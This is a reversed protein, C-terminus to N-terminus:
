DGCEPEVSQMAELALKELKPVDSQSLQELCELAMCRVVEDRDKLATRLAPIARELAVLMAPTARDGRLSETLEDLAFVASQRNFTRSEVLVSALLDVGEPHMALLMAAQRRVNIDRPAWWYCVELTVARLTSIILPHAPELETLVMAANVRAGCDKESSVYKVVDPVVKPGLKILREAAQSAVDPDDDELEDLTARIM